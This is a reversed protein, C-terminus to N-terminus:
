PSFPDRRSWHVCEGPSLRGSDARTLVCHRWPGADILNLTANPSRINGCAQARPFRRPRCQLRMLVVTHNYHKSCNSAVNALRPSLKGSNYQSTQFAPLCSAAIGHTQMKLGPRGLRPVCSAKLKLHLIPSHIDLFWLLLSHSNIVNTTAM